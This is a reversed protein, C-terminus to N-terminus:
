GEDGRVALLSQPPLIRVRRWVPYALRFTFEITNASEPRIHLSHKCHSDHSVMLYVNHLLHIYTRTSLSLSLSLYHACRSLIKSSM